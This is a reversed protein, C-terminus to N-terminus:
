EKEEKELAEVHTLRAGIRMEALGFRGITPTTRVLFTGEEVRSEGAAFVVPQGFPIFWDVLFGGEEFFRLDYRMQLPQDATNRFGIRFPGEVEVDNENGTPLLLAPFWSASDVVVAESLGPPASEILLVTRLEEPDRWRLPDEADGCGWAGLGLVAATLIAPRVGGGGHERAHAATLAAARM